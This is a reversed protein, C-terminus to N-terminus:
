SDCWVWAELGSNIPLSGTYFKGTDRALFIAVQASDHGLIHGGAYDSQGNIFIAMIGYPEPAWGCNSIYWVGESSPYAGNSAIRQKGHYANFNSSVYAASIDDYSVPNATDYQYIWASFTAAADGVKTGIRYAAAYSSDTTNIPQATQLFTLTTGSQVIARTETHFTIKNYKSPCHTADESGYYGMHG